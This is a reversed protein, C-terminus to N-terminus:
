VRRVRNIGKTMAHSLSGQYVVTYYSRLLWMCSGFLKVIRLVCAMRTHRCCFRASRGNAHNFFVFLSWHLLWSRQQLQELPAANTFEICGKLERLLSLAGEWNVLLIQQSCSVSFCFVGSSFPLPHPHWWRYYLHSRSVAVHHNLSCNRHCFVSVYCCLCKISGQGFAYSSM